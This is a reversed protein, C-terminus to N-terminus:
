LKKKLVPLFYEKFPTVETPQALWLGGNPTMQNQKAAELLRTWAEEPTAGSYTSWRLHLQNKSEGWKAVAEPWHKEAFNPIWAVLTAKNKQYIKWTEGPPRPITLSDWDSKQTHLTSKMVLGIRDFAGQWPGDKTKRVAKWTPIESNPPMFGSDLWLADPEVLYFKEVEQENGQHWNWQHPFWRGDKRKRWDHLSLTFGNGWHLTKPRYDSDLQMRIENESILSASGDPHIKWGWPFRLCIWRCTSKRQLDLLNKMPYLETGGPNKKWGNKGFHLLQVQNGNPTSNIVRVLNPGALFIQLRESVIKKNPGMVEKKGTLFYHQSPSAPPSKEFGRAQCCLELPSQQFALVFITFFMM